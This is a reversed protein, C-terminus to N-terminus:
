LLAPIRPRSRGTPCSRDSAKIKLWPPQGKLLRYPSRSHKAVIGALGKRRAEAFLEVGAEVQHQVAFIATSRGPVLRVLMAKRAIPPM